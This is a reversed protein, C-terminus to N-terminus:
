IFYRKWDIESLSRKKKEVNLCENKKIMERKLLLEYCTYTILFLSIPLINSDLLITYLFIPVAGFIGSFSCIYLKSENGKIKAHYKVYFDLHKSIGFKPNWGYYKAIVYHSLEHLPIILVLLIVLAVKESM